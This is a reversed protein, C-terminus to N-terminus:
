QNHGEYQKYTNPAPAPTEDETSENRREHHVIDKTANGLAGGTLKGALYDLPHQMWEPFTDTDAM